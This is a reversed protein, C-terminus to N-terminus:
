RSRGPPPRRVTSDRKTTDTPAPRPTTFNRAPSTVTENLSRMGNFQVRFQTGPPLPTDVTLYVDPYVKPRQLKPPPTTDPPGLPRRAGGRARAAAQAAQQAALRRARDAAAVSDARRVALISDRRAALRPNTDEPTPNARRISDARQVAKLSDFLLKQAAGMVLRIPIRTSDTATIRTLTIADVVFLQVPSYPKDFTVKLVRSSDQVEINAIRLGLTDRAIAYLDATANQTVTVRASDWVELPDLDRNKNRDDFARVLYPGPPLHRLTYRGSSDASVQYTTSDEAIAEVVGNALGKFEKWDFVAGTIRTDPIAGGTSFVVRIATDLANGRLDQVGPRILISYVTNPKWGKSPEITLRTRHWDVRARGSKPSIFVLESLDRAGLPTESVVEDFRLEVSRPKTIGTAQDKPTVALVLPPAADPPGGPPVTQNACAIGALTASVVGALRWGARTAISLRM